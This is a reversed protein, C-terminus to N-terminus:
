AGSAERYPGFGLFISAAILLAICPRVGRYDLLSAAFRLGLRRLSGAGVGQDVRADSKVVM